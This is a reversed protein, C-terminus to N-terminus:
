AGRRGFVEAIRVEDTCPIAIGEITNSEIETVLFSILAINQSNFERIQNLSRSSQLVMM